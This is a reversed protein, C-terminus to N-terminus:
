TDLPSRLGRALNAINDMSAVLRALDARHIPFVGGLSVQDLIDEKVDDAQSELQDLEKAAEALAEYRQAAFLGVV